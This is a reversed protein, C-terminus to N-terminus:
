FYLRKQTWVTWSRLSSALMVITLNKMVSFFAGFGLYHVCGLSVSSMLMAFVFPPTWWCVSWRFKILNTWILPACFFSVVLKSIATDTSMSGWWIKTLLAQLVSDTWWCQCVLLTHWNLNGCPPVLPRVFNRSQLKSGMNVSSVYTANDWISLCFFFILILISRGWDFWKMLWCSSQRLGPFGVKEQFM